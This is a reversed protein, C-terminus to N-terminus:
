RVIPPSNRGAPGGSARRIVGSEDTFWHDAGMDKPAAPDANITFADIRGQKALGPVYIFRYGFKTGSALV